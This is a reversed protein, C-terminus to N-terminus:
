IQIDKTKSFSSIRQKKTTWTRLKIFKNKQNNKTQNKKKKQKLQWKLINRIEYTSASDYQTRGWMDKVNKNAGNSFLYKVFPLHDEKCAIHLLTKGWRGKFVIDVNQNGTSHQVISSSWKICQSNSCWIGLFLSRLM